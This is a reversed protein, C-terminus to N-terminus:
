IKYLDLDNKNEANLVFSNKATRKVLGQLVKGPGTELYCSTGQKQMHLITQLWLVPKCIQKALQEKMESEKYSYPMATVNSYVPYRPKQFSMNQLVARFEDAADRMLPSHFGGSVRLKMNKVKRKRVINLFSVEDDQPISVVIQDITNINAFYVSEIDRFLEKVEEVALGLIAYMSGPNKISSIHMTNARECVTYFGEEITMVGSFTLAAIEGVSFGAVVTPELGSEELAFAMALSTVFICPQTNITKSLENESGFFCLNKIGARMKECTDYIERAKSCNNYLEYGMGSYQAGQGSFLLALNYM